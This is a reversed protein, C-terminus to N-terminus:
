DPVQETSLSLCLQSHLLGRATVIDHEGEVGVGFEEANRVVVTIAQLHEREQPKGADREPVLVNEVGRRRRAALQGVDDIPSLRNAVTIGDDGMEDRLVPQRDVRFQGARFAIDVMEEGAHQVVEIPHHGVRAPLVLPEPRQEPVRQHPLMRAERRLSQALRPLEVGLAVMELADAAISGIGGVCSPESIQLTSASIM